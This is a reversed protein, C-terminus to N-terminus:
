RDRDQGAVNRAVADGRVGVGMPLAEGDVEVQRAVFAARVDARDKVRAAGVAAELTKRLHPEGRVAAVSERDAAIGPMGGIGDARLDFRAVADQQGIEDVGANQSEQAVAALPDAIEEEVLHTVPRAPSTGFSGRDSTLLPPIPSLASLTPRMSNRSVSRRRPM